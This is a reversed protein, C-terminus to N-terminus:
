AYVAGVVERPDAQHIEDLPLLGDSCEEAASELGNATSRWDRLLGGKKPLGWASLAMCLGLTKGVKSRGFFHFGGSAEGIPGLLPGAFAASMMFAPIPNGVALAAIKDQWEQLTGAQTMAHSAHEAQTKLVLLERAKGVTEGNPLVFATDGGAPAHWGAQSVLTVRDGALVGGLARRLLARAAPDVNLRLGRDVLAAELEGPGVMLMRSPMPWSHLQNDSDHWSLWLGWCEGSADRGQGLVNIPACLWVEGTEEGADAYLGDERMFFGFPWRVEGAGPHARTRDQAAAAERRKAREAKMAKDLVGVTLGLRQAAQRREAAYEVSSLRSLREIEAARAEPSAPEPGADGASTGEPAAGENEQGGVDPAQATLEELQAAGGGAAIWDAVDGKDPLGPLALVRVKAAIGELGKVVAMAHARGPEDNDPLVVVDAGALSSGYEKRWKNAGGPSCTAAVGLRVLADVAKEGEAVYIVRGAQVAALVDPLRYLVRQVGQMNWLWGGKGDPRRQRFDKPEFRVVEYALVGAADTYRYVAVERKSTGKAFDPKPLHGRERLWEVAANKDLNRRGQVLDLVGGGQNTEHDHWTGLDTRVSLSGREGWRMEHKAPHEFSPEGLLERAVPGMARVFDPAEGHQRSASM